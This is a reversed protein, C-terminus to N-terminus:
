TAETADYPAREENSPDNGLRGLPTPPVDDGTITDFLGNTPAFVSFRTSWIPYKGSLGSFCLWKLNNCNNEM